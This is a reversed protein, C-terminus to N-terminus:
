GGISERGDPRPEGARRANGLARRKEMRAAVWDLSARARELQDRTATLRIHTSPITETTVRRYLARIEELRAEVESREPADDPLAQLLREARRWEELIHATEAAM